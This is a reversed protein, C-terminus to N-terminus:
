FAYFGLHIGIAIKVQKSWTLTRRAPTNKSSLGVIIRTEKKLIIELAEEMREDWKKQVSAFYDM